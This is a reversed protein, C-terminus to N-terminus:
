IYLYYIYILFSSIIFTSILANISYDRTTITVICLISIQLYIFIIITHLTQIFPTIEM